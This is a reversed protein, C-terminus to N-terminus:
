APIISRSQEISQLSPQKSATLSTTYTNSPLLQTVIAASLTPFFRTRMGIHRSGLAPFASHRLGLDDVSWSEGVQM